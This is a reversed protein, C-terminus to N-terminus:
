AEMIARVFEEVVLATGEPSPHFHDDKYLQIDPHERKYAAFRDGVAVVTGGLEEAAKTYARKLVLHMQEYTLGTERLKDTGDEYAWTQYLLLKKPKLLQQLKRAGELFDGFNNVPNFSQDQLILIDWHRDLHRERLLAGYHDEPDAYRNLFWGGKTFSEVQHPNGAQELRVSVTQPMNHYFTFSNGIFLVTKM